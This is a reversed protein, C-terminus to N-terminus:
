LYDEDDDDEDGVPFDTVKTPSMDITVGHNHGWDLEYKVAPNENWFKKISGQGIDVLLDGFSKRANKKKLEYDEYAKRKADAEAKIEAITMTDPYSALEQQSLTINSTFPYYAPAAKKFEAENDLYTKRATECLAGLTDETMDDAIWVYTYLGWKGAPQACRYHDIRALKM